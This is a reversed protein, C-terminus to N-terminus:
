YSWFDRSSTARTRVMNKGYRAIKEYFWEVEFRQLWIKVDPAGEYTGGFFAVLLVNPEVEVITSAHCSLFPATKAHYTFEEVVTAPIFVNERNSQQALERTSIGVKTYYKDTPHSILVDMADDGTPKWKSSNISRKPNEEKSSHKGTGQYVPKSMGSAYSVLYGPQFTCEILIHFLIVSVVGKALSM